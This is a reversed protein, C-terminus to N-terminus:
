RWPAYFLSKGLLKFALVEAFTQKAQICSLAKNVFVIQEARSANDIIEADLLYQEESSLCELTFYHMRWAAVEKLAFVVVFVLMLKKM